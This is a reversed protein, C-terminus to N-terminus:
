WLQWLYKIVLSFAVVFAAMSLGGAWTAAVYCSDRWTVQRKATPSMQRLVMDEAQALVQPTAGDHVFQSLLTIIRQTLQSDSITADARARLAALFNHLVALILSAGLASAIFLLHHVVTQAWGTHIDYKNAIALILSALVATSGASLAAIKEFFGASIEVSRRKQQEAENLPEKLKELFQIQQERSLPSEDSMEKVCRRASFGRRVWRILFLVLYTFGWGLPVPVFAVLASEIWPEFKMKALYETSLEDCKASGRLSGDPMEECRLTFGSATTILTDDAVKLTYTGACLIWVASAIIGVRKWGSLKVTYEAYAKKCAPRTARLIGGIAPM